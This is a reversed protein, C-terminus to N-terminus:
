LTSGNMISDVQAFFQGRSLVADCGANKAAALREAHVHPGFAMVQASHEANSKVGCLLVDLELAPLGLDVVVMDAPREAHLAIAASTNAAVRLDSGSAAAAGSVRSVVMLDNSLLVVDMATLDRRQRPIRRQDSDGAGDARRFDQRRWHPRGREHPRGGRSVRGHPRRLRREGRNGLCIKRLLNTKYEHGRYTELQGRQRAYGMADCVTMRTVDMRELAQQVADLKTPQIVAFIMKMPLEALRDANIFRIRWARVGNYWFVMTAVLVRPDGRRAIAVARRVDHRRAGERNTGVDGALHAKSYSDLKAQGGPSRISGRKSSAWEAYAITQCDEPAYTEGLALQSMRRLYARQLNRRLSSIAPKRNTFEGEKTSDVESYVAKTLRELLEATTLADVDAATKLESDHLRALTLPSMLKSLIRDQWLLIIEHAPYDGREAFEREGTTGSRPRWSTICIRHSTSRSIM